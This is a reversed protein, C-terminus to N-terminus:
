AANSVAKKAESYRQIDIPDGNKVMVETIAAAKDLPINREKLYAAVQPDFGRNPDSETGSTNPAFSSGGMLSPYSGAELEGKMLKDGLYTRLHFDWFGEQSRQALPFRNASEMIQDGYKQFIGPNKQRARMELVNAKAELAIQQTGATQRNIFGSPDTLMQTTPDNQDAIVTPDIVPEPTTLKNLSAQLAALTGQLATQGDTLAKLDDKSAATDLKNKLDEPKMGLIEEATLQKGSNWAM